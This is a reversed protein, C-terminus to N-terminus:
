HFLHKYNEYFYDESVKYSKSKEFNSLIDKESYLIENNKLKTIIGKLENITNFTIINDFYKNINKTGWYLPITGTSLCDMIKETFYDDQIINEIVIHYKYDKLGIIKDEIPTYGRGYVDINSGLEIIADHRLRHGTTQRKNSVIISCFKTKNYIKFDEDKIWVGGHPYFLFKNNIQCLLRDHTFIFDFIHHNKTIWEYMIPNISRPEYLWGIKIESPDNLAKHLVRDTFFCIKSKYIKRDWDFYTPIRGHCSSKDHSFNTDVIRVKM